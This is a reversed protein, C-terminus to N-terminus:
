ALGIVGLACDADARPTLGRIMARHRGLVQGHPRHREIIPDNRYKAHQTRYQFQRAGAGAQIRSPTSGQQIQNLM